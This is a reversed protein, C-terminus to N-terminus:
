PILRNKSVCLHLENHRLSPSALSSIGEGEAFIDGSGASLEDLECYERNFCDLSPSSLHLWQKQSSRMKRDAKLSPTEAMIAIILNSEKM